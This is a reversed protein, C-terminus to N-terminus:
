RPRTMHRGRDTWAREVREARPLTSTLLDGDDYGHLELLRDELAAHPEINGDALVHRLEAGQKALHRGVLVVRHCDLPEREACMLAPRHKGRLELVRKLAQGFQPQAAMQGYDPRAAGGDAQPPRGGLADGLWLYDIGAEALAATLAARNFQPFRRSAPLSRVDVVLTIGAGRLLDLFREIRHNSHGVTYIPHAADGASGAAAAKGAAPRRTPM